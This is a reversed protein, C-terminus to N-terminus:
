LIENTERFLASHLHKNDYTQKRTEIIKSKIKQPDDSKDCIKEKIVEKLLEEKTGKQYFGLSNEETKVVDTVSQLGRGGEKRTWYLQDIDARPHMAHYINLMKRTKRDMDELEAKTWEIIGAGYRIISVARSNIAQISNKQM